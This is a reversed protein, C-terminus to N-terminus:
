RSSEYGDRRSNCVSSRVEIMDRKICEVHRENKDFAAMTEEHNEDMRTIVALAIEKKEEEIKTIIAQTMERIAETNEASSAAQATMLKTLTIDNREFADRTITGQLELAKHQERCFYLSAPTIVGLAAFIIMAIILLPLEGNAANIIAQAFLDEWSM